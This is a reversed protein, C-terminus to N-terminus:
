KFMQFGEGRSFISSGGQDFTIKLYEHSKQCLLNMCFSTKFQEGVTSRHCISINLVILCNYLLEVCFQLNRFFTINLPPKTLIIAKLKARYFKNKLSFISISTPIGPMLADFSARLSVHFLFRVLAIKSPIEVM